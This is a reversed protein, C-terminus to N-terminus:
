PYLTPSRGCPFYHWEQCLRTDPSSGARGHQPLCPGQLRGGMQDPDPNDTLMTKERSYVHRRTIAMRRYSVMTTSDTVWKDFFELLEKVTDDTASNALDQAKDKTLLSLIQQLSVKKEALESAKAVNRLHYTLQEQAEQNTNGSPTPEM